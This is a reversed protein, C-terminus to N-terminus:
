RRKAQHKRFQASMIAKQFLNFCVEPNQDKITLANDDMDMKMWAKHIFYRSLIFPAIGGVMKEM